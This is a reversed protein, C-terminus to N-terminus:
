DATAKLTLSPLLNFNAGQSPIAFYLTYLGPQPVQIEIEYLGEGLATAVSRQNWNGATQNAVALVDTLDALPQDGEPDTLSFQLTFAEGVKLQRTETLFEMEPPSDVREEALSPNPKVTMEFCYVVRPSDLLFAVQYTGSTPVRVSGVYVGPAEQRLSRDIVSVARPRLSHGQFGGTPAQSGELYYYVQDDAPNAIVMAGEEPTDSVASALSGDVYQSPAAQGVPVTLVSITGQEALDALPILVVAPLSQTRVYAATPSFTIQDPRGDVPLEYVMLNRTADFIAVQGAEPNAAFGWRGDPAFRLAALGPQSSMRAVQELRQGDIVSISGSAADAVYVAGNQESVDLAAPRGGVELNQILELSQTDIVSVTGAQSNTVYLTRSDASFALEHHGAGTRIFSVVEQAQPDIVTVGSEEAQASDNGVWLSREDPQFAIRTPNAGVPLNKIVWFQELDAVTVQGAEPITVFLYRQDNSKAWDAGAKPLQIAGFLNTMGAVDVMPDIVSIVADQNMALVFYSNLNIDPRSALTGGLYGRVREECAAPSHDDEDAHEGEHYLDMWAAPRLDPIGEGSEADSIRFKLRAIEGEFIEPAIEGGRGGVGLFNEVTFEVAVGNEVVKEYAPDDRIPLGHHDFKLGEDAEAEADHHDADTEVDTQDADAAGDAQDADSEAAPPEGDPGTAGQPLVSCSVSFLIIVFLLPLVCLYAIKPMLGSRLM